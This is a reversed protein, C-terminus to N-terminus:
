PQGVAMTFPVSAVSPGWAMELLGRVGGLAKVTITFEEVPASTPTMTMQVRGADRAPTYQTGWQGVQNSVILFTGSHTHQVWLTYMGVPLTMTGITMARTIFMHTADNAGARWVSDFPVLLGGWVTRERVLPRGYDILVMGGPGFSARAEDRVSLVGTPKMTRALAAVDVTGNSRTAYAKNTTFKGDVLQLQNKADFRLVMAYPAGNLRLTDGRPMFLGAYGIGGALGIAPVSDVRASGKRLGALVETPGYIFVPFNVVAKAVAFARRQVSDKFVAERVVSDRSFTFRTETPANPVPTGDGQMRAITAATPWGGADMTLEYKYRVVALGNRQVMEGTMRNGARTFQEVALTDTGLRYVMTAPQCAAVASHLLLALSLTVNAALLRTRM